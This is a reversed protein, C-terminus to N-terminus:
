NAMTDNWYRALESTVRKSSSSAHFRWPLSASPRLALVGFVRAAKDSIHFRDLGFGSATDLDQVFKTGCFNAYAFLCVPFEPWAM